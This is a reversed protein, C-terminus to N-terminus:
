SDAPVHAYAEAPVIKFDNDGPKKWYLLLASSGKRQFYRVLLPYHGPEGIHLTAPESFRDSHVTPDDLIRRGDLFIRVGDNSEVKLTYEGTRTFHIVGLLQVYVLRDFGSNFVTGGRGARHSLQRVPEGSLGKEGMAQVDPMESIHRMQRSSPRKPKYYKVSLGPRLSSAAPIPSPWLRDGAADPRADPMKWSCGLVMLIMLVIALRVSPNQDVSSKDNM